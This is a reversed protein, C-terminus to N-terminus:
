VPVVNPAVASVGAGGEQLVLTGEEGPTQYVTVPLPLLNPTDVQPVAHSLLIKTKVPVQPENVHTVPFSSLPGSQEPV